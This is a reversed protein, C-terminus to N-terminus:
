GCRVPVKIGAEVVQSVFRIQGLVLLELFDGQLLALQLQLVPHFVDDPAEAIAGGRRHVRLTSIRPGGAGDDRRAGCRPARRRCRKSVGAGGVGAAAGGRVMM